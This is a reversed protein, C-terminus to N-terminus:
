IYFCLNELTCQLKHKIEEIENELDSQRVVGCGAVCTLGQNNWSIGRISAICRSSDMPISVGFPSAYSDGLNHGFRELKDEWGTKPCIGLAPTPHILSVLSSFDTSSNLIAIIPTYLHTINGFSVLRPSEFSVEGIKGFQHTLYDVVLKHEWLEKLDKTLDHSKDLSRATGALAGSYVRNGLLDFLLEPSAGLFGGKSNWMGYPILGKPLALINSLLISLESISPAPNSSIRLAPVAKEIRGQSISDKVNEFIKLFSEWDPSSWERSIKNKGVLFKFLEGSGLVSHNKFTYWPKSRTLFFDNSYFSPFIPHPSSTQLPEGWGVLVKGDRLGVLAGENLFSEADIKKDLKVM